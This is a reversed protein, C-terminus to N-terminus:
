SRVSELLDAIGRKKASAVFEFFSRGEATWHCARSKELAQTTNLGSKYLLKFAGKVEDRQEGTFGARRLGVVNLGVVCNREAGITFPPVDKSFASNGQIVALRGVRIHQHFASGGGVFVREQIEVHGGLLANNAIIVHDRICSDHGVHIGGMLFCHNGIRTASGAFTARHITCYERIVNHDGIWVETPTQRKFTTDQPDAGIIAGYGITNARGIRVSGTIVAHAHIVCGPGVVARGEICAHAGIEVDDALEASRHIVASPHINM